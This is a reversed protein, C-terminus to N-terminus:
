RARGSGPSSAAILLQQGPEDQRAHPADRFARLEVLGLRGNASDPRLAQRHLVGGPPHRGHRGGPPPPPLRSRRALPRTEGRDPIQRFAIEMEYLSDNRAEDLRPAQSHPGVFLGSFLYSLSPHNHWYTILSRLLGPQRLAPSDAPTPGGLIM